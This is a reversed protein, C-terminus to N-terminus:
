YPIPELSRKFYGGHHEKNLKAFSSVLATASEEVTISASAGGMDTQVWGPCFSAILIHEPELDIAMTKMLSNLASQTLVAVSAANTDFNKIIDARNPEQETFYKVWMGANNLLITLGKDGVIKEVEKYASKISEDCTVDLKITSLRSDSIEKLEKANNPDRATAIVHRIEKNKLFEKVLGLGIGRNAGTVMVSYPSM